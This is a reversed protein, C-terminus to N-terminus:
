VGLMVCPWGQAAYVTDGICYLGEINTDNSPLKPLFNKMTIANGGLQSRNIFNEFSNPTASFCELVEDSEIHLEKMITDLLLEQLERKQEKYSEKDRWFRNDTHISATISYHGKPALSTDSRDSFSVFLARSLSNPYLKDQILQYHHEYDKDSKITMYLMFSGQHNDLKEYPKFYNKTKTDSFLKASDYVTSNLIIKQAQFSETKTHLLFSNKERKIYTIESNRQLSKINQTMQNFLESFGGVVYHNENFTYGLSLAATLFNIEKTPAQAVILIQSELFQLYEQSVEGYFKDINAVCKVFEPHANPAEAVRYEVFGLEEAIERHEVELEFEAESNDLTFAIPFIIVKKKKLSKLKDELYPRIWELPGLRSQYALHTNHFEIGANLLMKRAQFVNQRIHKQYSDGRDIIKKPLGHASFVLVYDEPNEDGLAEKIREVISNNYYTDTTLM